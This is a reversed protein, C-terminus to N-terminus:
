LNLLLQRKLRAGDREFELHVTITGALDAPLELSYTGDSEQMPLRISRTTTPSFILLSSRAGHVTMGDRDYLKVQLRRGTLDTTISWGFTEAAKKELLTENYRLGHSYYDRDTVGSTENSARYISWATLGLFGVGIVLILWPFHKTKNM